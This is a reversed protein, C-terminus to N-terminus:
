IHTYFTPMFLLTIVRENAVGKIIVSRETYGGPHGKSPTPQQICHESPSLCLLIGPLSNGTGLLNRIDTLLFTECM